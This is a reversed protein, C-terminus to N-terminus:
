SEQEVGDSLYYQQNNAKQQKYKGFLVDDDKLCSLRERSRRIKNEDIM